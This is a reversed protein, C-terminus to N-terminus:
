SLIRAAAHFKAKDNKLDAYINSIPVANTIRWVDRGRVLSVTSISYEQLGYRLKSEAKRVSRATAGVLGLERTYVSLYKNSEGDPSGRLVIGETRYIHYAM